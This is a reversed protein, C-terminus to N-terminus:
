SDRDESFFGCVKDDNDMQFAMENEVGDFKYTCRIEFDSIEECVLDTLATETTINEFMTDVISHFTECSAGKVKERDNEAIGEVFEEANEIASNMFLSLALLAAVAIFLIAILAKM